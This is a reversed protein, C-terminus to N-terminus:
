QAWTNYLDPGMQNNLMREWWDEGFTEEGNGLSLNNMDAMQAEFMNMRLWSNFLGMRSREESSSSSDAGESGAYAAVADGSTKGQSDNGEDHDGIERLYQELFDCTKAALKWTAGLDRTAELCMKIGNVARQKETATHDVTYISVLLTTAALWIPNLLFIDLSKGPQCGELTGRHLVASAIRSISLAAAVCESLSSIQNITAFNPRPPILNRYLLIKIYSHYVWICSTQQLLTYNSRDPDWRLVRPVNEAWENMAQDLEVATARRNAAGSADKRAPYLQVLVKGLIQDLKLMEIFASVRSVVKGEPQKVAGCGELPWYEDDVAEPFSIDFDIDAMAVSRGLTACSHRDTHYLCWFARKYLERTVTDLKEVVQKLHIGLEQTYRLASGAGAAAFHPLSGAQMFYCILSQSQLQYLDPMRVSNEGLNLAMMLYKWGSSYSLWISDQGHSPPSPWLTAPTKFFLAGCAFLLLCVKGFRQHTKWLGTDYQRQFLPRNLLPLNVNVHDFYASILQQDLGEGPWDSYDLPYLGAESVSSEWEPIRWVPETRHRGLSEFFDAHGDAHGRLEQYHCLLHAGSTKGHHRWQVGGLRMVSLSYGRAVSNTVPLDDDSEELRETSDPPSPISPNQVPAHPPHLPKMAPFEPISLARLHEQYSRLNFDEHDIPPGVYDDLSIHPYVEDAKLMTELRSCRQQLM